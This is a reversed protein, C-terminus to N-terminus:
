RSRVQNTGLKKHKFVIEKVIIKLVEFHRFMGDWNILLYLKGWFGIRHM